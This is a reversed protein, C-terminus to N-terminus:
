SPSLGEVVHLYTHGQIGKLETKFTRKVKIKRQLHEYVAESIVVEEKKAVSQIRHTFNVAAGVIGYKARAKSGMNGVVVEGANIGIGMYLEPLGLDKEEDNFHEMIEQMELACRVADTAKSAVPSDLPDFLVLAADGIFDVIIGHHNHIIDIMYAFYRNLIGTVAEPSLTECLPTFGRLDSMLILVERKEGGLRAAEPRRLLERAIERDMYRGFTDRIFEREKLGEVMTNFSETLQGIEDRSKVPLNETYDGDAVKVAAQSIKRISHVARGAVLRILFLIIFIWFVATAAYYFGFRIVPALIEKGPGFVILTWPVGKLKYFGAVESPPEGPGLVTGYSNEKMSKLIALHLPDNSGGLKRIGYMLLDTHALYNGEEDVLCAESSKWWGSSLVDKMLYDFSIAVELKGVNRGSPDNLDSILSVTKHGTQPHLRPPTIEAIRATHFVMSGMNKMMHSGPGHMRIHENYDELGTLTVSEVGELQKLQEIIWTQVIQWNPSKATKNFMQIWEIPDKLRMNISHAAPQLKLISSNQWDQFVTRSAYSFGFVGMGFLLLSVPLLLLLFLKHRLTIFPAM